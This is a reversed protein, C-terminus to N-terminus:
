WSTGEAIHRGIHKCYKVLWLDLLYFFSQVHDALVPIAEQVLFLHM